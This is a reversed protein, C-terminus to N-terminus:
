LYPPNTIVWKQEYDPPNKLTDQTIPNELSSDIDYVSGNTIQFFLFPPRRGGAFPEVLLVGNPIDQILNKCIKAAETTYHQTRQLDEM